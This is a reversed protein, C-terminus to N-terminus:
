ISICTFLTSHVALCTHFIRLAINVFFIRNLDSGKGNELFLSLKKSRHIYHYIESGGKRPHSAMLAEERTRSQKIVSSDESSSPLRRRDRM